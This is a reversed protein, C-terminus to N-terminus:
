AQYTRFAYKFFNLLRSNFWSYSPGNALISAVTSDAGKFAVKQWVLKGSGLVHHTQYVKLSKENDM